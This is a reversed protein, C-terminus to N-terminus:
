VKVAKVELIHKNKKEVIEYSQIDYKDLLFDNLKIDNLTQPECDTPKENLNFSGFLIGGRKIIRTIEECMKPFNDVHDLSNVTFLIDVHEDPLPIKEEESKAYNINHNKILFCRHYEEVLVDIGIREQAETAWCLSGRPGCGFDAVVKDKIFSQDVEKALALMEREYWSNLLTRNENVFMRKWYALEHKYKNTHKMKIIIAYKTIKKNSKQQGRCPVRSTNAYM